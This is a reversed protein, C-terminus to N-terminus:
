KGNMERHPMIVDGSGDVFQFDFHGTSLDKPRRSGGAVLNEYQMNERWFFLVYPCTWGVTCFTCFMFERLTAHVHM